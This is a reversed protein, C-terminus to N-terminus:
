PLTVGTLAGAARMAASALPALTLWGATIALVPLILSRPM